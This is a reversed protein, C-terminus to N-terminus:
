YTSHDVISRRALPVEITYSAVRRAKRISRPPRDVADGRVGCPPHEPGAAAGVRVRRHSGSIGWDGLYICIFQFRNKLHLFLISHMYTNM